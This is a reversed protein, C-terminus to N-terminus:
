RRGWIPGDASYSGAEGSVGAMSALRVPLLRGLRENRARQGRRTEAQGQRLIPLRGCECVRASRFYTLALNRGEYSEERHFIYYTPDTRRKRVHPDASEFVSDFISPTEPKMWENGAPALAAVPIPFQESM